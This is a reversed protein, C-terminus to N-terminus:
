KRLTDLYPKYASLSEYLMNNVGNSTITGGSIADVRDKDDDVKASKKVVAVSKFEEGKYIELGEFQKGFNEYNAIEAGLGPTESAHSLNISYITSADDNLALYGWIPGWLGKGHLGVVYKTEGDVEAIFLPAGNQGIESLDMAFAADDVGTGQSGEIIQGLSDAVFADKIVTNYEAPVDNPHLKLAALIQAMTDINVNETQKEKLAQSTLALGVAVLIVMISSYLIVYTNSNKNM